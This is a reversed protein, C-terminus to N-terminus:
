RVLGEGGISQLETVVESVASRLAANEQSTVQQGAAITGLIKALQENLKNISAESALSSGSPLAGALADQWSPGGGAVGRIADFVEQFIAQYAPSSGLAARAIELYQQAAPQLQAAVTFNGGKYKKFLDWFESGAAGLKQQMNLPSLDGQLLGGLWDRWGPRLDDNAVSSLNSLSSSASSASSGLSQMSNYLSLIQKILSQNAASYNHFDEDTITLLQGVLQTANYAAAWPNGAQFSSVAANFSGSAGAGSSGGQISAIIGRVDQLMADAAGSVQLFAPAVDMLADWMRRGAETSLDLGSVLNYFAETSAPISLGLDGFTKVVAQQAMELKQADSTFNEAFWAWKGAVRNFTDGLGEGERQMAQLATIDLGKIGLGSLAEIVDLVEDVFSALESSSGSWEKITDAITQDIGEFLIGYRSQLLEKFIQEAGEGEAGEPIAFQAPQGDSRLGMGTYASLRASAALSGEAGLLRATRTDFGGVIGLLDQWGRGPNFNGETGIGGFLGAGGTGQMIRFNPNEGKDGFMSALATIVAIGVGIAPLAAGLQFLLSGAGGIEGLGALMGASGSFSLGAGFSGGFMSGAGTLLSSGLFNGLGGAVTGAGVQGAQSALASSGTLMAGLQLFWKKAFIALMERAFDQAARKLIDFANEGQSALTVLANAGRSSLEDWFSLQEERTERVSLLAARERYYARIRAEDESDLAAKLDREEELKLLYLERERTSLGLTEIEALLQGNALELASLVDNRANIEDVRQQQSERLLDTRRQMLRAEEELGKTYFPQQAILQQMLVAHRQLSIWGLSLAVNLLGLDKLFAPDIGAAVGAIKQQLKEFEGALKSVKETTVDGLIKGIDSGLASDVTPKQTGPKGRAEMFSQLGQLEARLKAVRELIKSTQDSGTIRELLGPGEEAVALLRSIEAQLEGIRNEVPDGLVFESWTERLGALVGNLIGGEIAARKMEESIRVLAPAAQNLLAQGAGEASSKVAKMNDNFQEAAKATDTSIVIGLREAEDMMATIGKTGQLMLPLMELGAKGLLQVALAARNAGEPMSRFRDALQLLVPGVGQKIDIGLRSFLQGSKSTADQAATMEQSLKKVGATFTTAQVDSLKAAYNWRSFEEVSMQLKQAMKGASDAADVVSKGWAVMGAISIGVGLSALAAQTNRVHRDVTAATKQSRYEARTMAEEFKVINGSLSVVLDGLSAAM